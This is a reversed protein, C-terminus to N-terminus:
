VGSKRPVQLRLVRRNPIFAPLWSFSLALYFPFLAEDFYQLLTLVSLLIIYSAYFLATFVYYERRPIPHVFRWPRFCLPVSIRSSFGRMFCGNCKSLNPVAYKKRLYFNFTLFSAIFYVLSAGEILVTSTESM